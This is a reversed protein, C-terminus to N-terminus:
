FTRAYIEALYIIRTVMTLGSLSGRDDFDSYSDFDEYDEDIPCENQIDEDFDSVRNRPSPSRTAPTNSRSLTVLRSLQSLNSQSRYMSPPGGPTFGKVIMHTSTTTSASTTSEIASFSDVDSITSQSIWSDSSTPRGQAEENTYQTYNSSHINVVPIPSSPTQHHEEDKTPIVLASRPIVKIAQPRHQSIVLATAIEEELSGSFANDDDMLSACFNSEDGSTRRCRKRHAISHPYPM